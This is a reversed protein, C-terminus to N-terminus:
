CIDVLYLNVVLLIQTKVILLTISILVSSVLADFPLCVIFKYSDSELNHNLNVVNYQLQTTEIVEREMEPMLNNLSCAYNFITLSTTM